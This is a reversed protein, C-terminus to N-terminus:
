ILYIAPLRQGGDYLLKITGMTSRVNLTELSCRGQSTTSSGCGARAFM